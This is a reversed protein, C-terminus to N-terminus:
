HRGPLQWELFGVPPIQDGYDDITNAAIASAGCLRLSEERISVSRLTLEISAKRRRVFLSSVQDPRPNESLIGALQWEHGVPERKKQQQSHKDQM